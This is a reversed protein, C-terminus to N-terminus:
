GRKVVQALASRLAQRSVPKGLVLDVAAPHEGSANMFEGFGTLLIIGTGPSHEQVEAALRDGTLDPMARDTIVVDYSAARIRELGEQGNTATEVAHGDAEIYQRLVERILPEDDVILVRLRQEIPGAQASPATAVPGSAAPLKITFTAGQAPESAIEISGGHRQVIGYVMSLGLGSGDEGKTTFFPELCRQRVEETMGIGTDAVTLAVSEGVLETTIWITGGQPMADVANFLLNVLAEQLGGPDGIIMPVERLQTAIRITAGRALAQDKWRPRTLAIVREVLANLDVPESLEGDAPPRYFDRLRAVVSAADRAGAVILELYRRVKEEDAWIQRDLLLESFGLIPALANNFDHGIGSAMQGLARLREQQVLTAQAARLEALAAELRRNTEQAETYRRAGAIAAAAANAIISLAKAQGLNYRRGRPRTISVNLVGILHGGSVLPYVISSYIEPRNCHQAIESDAANRDHLVLPERHRAVWGAMGQDFSIREGVLWERDEGRVAAICLERGDPTVLMVSAEDGECLQMAGDILKDVIASADPAYAIAQSLEYIAVTERLQLNEERLRRVQVARAVVPLVTQLKFPKLLYDFAGTKMADVATQVTGQGTMIVGILHPDIELAARLLTIGDMGPMMLDAMLVDFTCEQLRRLAEDGSTAGQADYGRATLGEVLAEMLEVEDDVVLISGLRRLDDVQM